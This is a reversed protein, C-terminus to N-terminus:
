GASARLWQELRAAFVLDTGTIGGVDHTHITLTLGPYEIVITPHHDLEDALAGAYAAIEGTRKMGKAPIHLRLAGEAVSWRAGLTAVDPALEDASLPRREHKRSALTDLDTAM